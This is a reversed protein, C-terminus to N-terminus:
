GEKSNDAKQIEEIGKSKGAPKPFIKKIIESKNEQNETTKEEMFFM